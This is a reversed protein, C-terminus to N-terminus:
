GYNEGMKAGFESIVYSENANAFAFLVNEGDNFLLEDNLNVLAVQRTLYIESLCNSESTEISAFEALFNDQENGLDVLLDDQGNSRVLVNETETITETLILAPQDFAQVIDPAGVGAPSLSNLFRKIQPVVKESFIEVQYNAPYLERYVIQDTKYLQKIANIISEPEGGARNIEIRTLIAARYEEDGRFNREENVILGIRDLLVGVSEDITRKTYLKFIEDEINQYEDIICKLFDQFEFEEKDQELLRNKALKFHDSIYSITM